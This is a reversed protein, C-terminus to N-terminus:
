PQQPPLGLDSWRMNEACGTPWYCLLTRETGAPVKVVTCPGTLPCDSYFLHGNFFRLGVNYSHEITPVLQQFTYTTSPFQQAPGAAGTVGM